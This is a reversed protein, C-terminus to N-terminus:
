ITTEMFVPVWFLAWFVVIRIIHPGGFPVVLERFGGYLSIHPIGFMGGGKSM